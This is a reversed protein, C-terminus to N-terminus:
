GHQWLVIEPCVSRGVSVCVSLHALRYTLLVHWKRKTALSAALLVIKMYDVQEDWNHLGARVAQRLEGVYRQRTLVFGLGAFHSVRRFRGADRAYGPYSNDSFLSGTVVSRDRRMLGEVAEM